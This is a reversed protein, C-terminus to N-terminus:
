SGPKVCSPTGAIYPKTAVDTDATGIGQALSGGFLPLNTPPNPANVLIQSVATVGDFRTGPKFTGYGALDSIPVSLTITAKAVDVTGKVHAASDINYGTFLVAVANFTLEDGFVAQPGYAVAAAPNPDITAGLYVPATHGPVNWQVLYNHAEPWTTDPTALTKLRIVATVYRADSAIDASVIDANDDQPGKKATGLTPDVIADSGPDSVLNCVKKGGKAKGAKHGAAFAPSSGAALAAIGIAAVLRVKM